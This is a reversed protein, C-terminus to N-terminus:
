RVILLSHLPSSVPWVQEVARSSGPQFMDQGFSRQALSLDGTPPSDGMRSSISAESLSSRYLQPRAREDEREQQLAAVARAHDKYQGLLEDQCELLAAM